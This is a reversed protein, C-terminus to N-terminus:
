RVPVACTRSLLREDPGVREVADCPLRNYRFSWFLSAIIFVVGILGTLVEPIEYRISFM